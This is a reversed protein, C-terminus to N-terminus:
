FSLSARLVFTNTTPTYFQSPSQILSPEIKLTLDETVNWDFLYADVTADIIQLIYFGATGIISLDRYRKFSDKARDIQELSLPFDYNLHYNPFDIHAQKFLLYNKRNYDIFFAFTAFGVYVIPVKWYKKNYVQGLGPLIASLLAATHPNQYASDHKYAESNVVSDKTETNQAEAKFFLTFIFLLVLGTRWAVEYYKNYYSFTNETM